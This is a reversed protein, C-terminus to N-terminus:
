KQFRLEDMSRLLAYCSELRPVFVGKKQAMRLCNGVIAEVELSRQAEYDQLMSSKYNGLTATYTVMRAADEETLTISYSAAALIVEHMLDLCLKALNPDHSMEFTTAGGALVSVTNYPINWLLKKWRAYQVDEMLACAAGGKEFLAKLTKANEDVPTGAPFYGMELKGPGTNIVSGKEPRWACLYAVASLLPNEPFSAHIQEEIGIGNQILVITSKSSRVAGKLLSVQDIHPLVKTCLLIYDPEFPCEQPSHLIYDPIYDYKQGRDTIKYCGAKKVSDFDSRAVVSTVAGALSLRSTFYLGLSGSGILLVKKRVEEM